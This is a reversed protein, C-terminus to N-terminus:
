AILGSDMIDSGFEHEVFCVLPDVSYARLRKRYCERVDIRPHDMYMAPLFEDVPILNGPFGAEMIKQIGGRSIMYAHSGYSFGPRIFEGDREEVKEQPCRGLFLLDWIADLRTLRSVIDPLDLALTQSFYVDDELFVYCPDNLSAAKKWCFWHSIACGIEGRNMPRNWWRNDSEMEWPFLSFGNNKIAQTDLYKGDLPGEWDSTYYPEFYNPLQAEIQNKRDKRRKLNVIFAKM